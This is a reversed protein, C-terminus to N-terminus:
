RYCANAWINKPSKTCHIRCGSWLLINRVCCLLETLPLIFSDVHKEKNESGLTSITRQANKKEM